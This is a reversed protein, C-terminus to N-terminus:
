CMKNIKWDHFSRLLKAKEIDTDQPKGADLKIIKYAIAM